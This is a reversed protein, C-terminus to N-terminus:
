FLYGYRLSPVPLIEEEGLEKILDVGIRWYGREGQKYSYGVPFNYIRSRDKSTLNFYGIGTGFNLAHKHCKSFVLISSTAKSLNSLILGSLAVDVEIGLPLKSNELQASFGIGPTFLDGSIYPILNLEKHRKIKIPKYKLSDIEQSSPNPTESAFLSSSCILSLILLIFKM